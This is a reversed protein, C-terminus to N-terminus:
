YYKNINQYSLSFGFMEKFKNNFQKENSIKSLSKVLNVMRDKGFKRILIEVVFGAEDYLGDHMESYSSLFREFRLPKKDRLPNQGSLHGSLGENLWLPKSSGNSVIRFFLHCLEHKILAVYREQTYKWTSEKALKRRDMVYVRKPNDAALGVLWSETKRGLLKDFDVRSKVVFVDSTNNIWGIGWFDNLERMGEEYSTQILEDDVQKLDLKYIM